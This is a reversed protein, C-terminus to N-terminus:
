EGIKYTFVEGSYIKEPHPMPLGGKVTSTAYVIGSPLEVLSLYDGHDAGTSICMRNNEFWVRQKRDPRLRKCQYHGFVTLKPLAVDLTLFNKAGWLYNEATPQSGPLYSPDYGAHVFIYNKLEWIFSLSSLWEIDSAMCEDLNDEYRTVYSHLTKDGGVQFYEEETIKGALYSILLAEHNGMLIKAGKKELERALSVMGASDPGRDVLDGLIVLQDDGPNYGANDLLLQAPWPHGHPDAM